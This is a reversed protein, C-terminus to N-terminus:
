RFLRPGAQVLSLPLRALAYIGFASGLAFLVGVTWRAWNKGQYLFWLLICAIGTRVYDKLEPNPLWSYISLAVSVLCIM